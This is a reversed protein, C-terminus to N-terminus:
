VDFGALKAEIVQALIVSDTVPTSALAVLRARSVAALPGKQEHEVRGWIFLEAQQEGQLRGPAAIEVQLPIQRKLTCFVEERNRLLFVIVAQLPVLAVFRRIAQSRKGLSQASLRAEQFFM